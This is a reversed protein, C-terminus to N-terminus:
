HWLWSTLGVHHSLTVPDRHPARIIVTGDSATEGQAGVATGGDLELLGTVALKGGAATFSGGDDAAYVQAWSDGLWGKWGGDVSLTTYSTLATGLVVRATLSMQGLALVRGGTNSITTGANVTMNGSVSILGGQSQETSHAITRCSFWSCSEHLSVQGTRIATNILSGSIHANLDGDNVLIQGGINRLSAASLTMGKDAVMDALQGPIAIDGFDINLGSDGHRLGLLNHVHDFDVENGDNVGPVHTVLNAIEGGATMNLANNSIIRGTQNTIDGGAHLVIDDSDGFLIALRSADVTQNVINGGATLVVAGTSTNDSADRLHGQIMSGANRIDGTTNVQVSGGTAVLTSGKTGDDQLAFDVAKAIVDGAALVDSGTITINGSATLQISQGASEVDGRVAQQGNAESQIAVIGGNLSVGAAGHVSAGNVLLNGQANIDIEGTSSTLTAPQFAADAFPSQVNFNQAKVSINQVAALSGGQIDVGQGNMGIGGTATGTVRQFQIDGPTVGSAAGIVLDGSQTVKGTADSTGASLSADAMEIKPALMQVNGNASILAKGNDGSGLALEGAQLGINGLATIQGGDVRVKGDAQLAFDGVSAFTKGAIHVGAGQDTVLIEIRGSTLSGLPTIDVLESGPSSATGAGYSVYQSFNDTASVATNVEATSTGGVLRTTATASTFTDTVPGNLQLQRAILDLSLMAGTLGGSGIVISGRSTTLVVDRQLVGPASLFDNFSVTGTSLVVHGTNVFSGGDVTIGNPNALIVNARPGLVTIPGQIWSPNSSTVENVITRANVGTNQLAAGPKDVNFSSYGNYSVNAVPTAISIVARGNSDYTVTTSTRGDPTIGNAFAGHMVSFLVAVCGFVM